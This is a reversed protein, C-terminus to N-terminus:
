LWTPKAPENSKKWSLSRPISNWRREKGRGSNGLSASGEAVKDEISIKNRLAAMANNLNRIDEPVSSMDLVHRDLAEQTKGLRQDLSRLNELITHEEATGLTQLDQM